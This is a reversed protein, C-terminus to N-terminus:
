VKRGDHRVAVAKRRKALAAALELVAGPAALLIMAISLTMMAAMLIWLMAEM